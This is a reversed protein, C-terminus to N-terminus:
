VEEPNVMDQAQGRRLIQQADLQKPGMGLGAVIPNISSVFSTIREQCIKELNECRQVTLKTDKKFQKRAKKLDSRVGAQFEDSAQGIMENFKGQSEFAQIQKAQVNDIVLQM